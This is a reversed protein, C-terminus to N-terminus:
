LGEVGLIRNLFRSVPDFMMTLFDLPSPLPVRMDLLISMGTGILMLVSFVVAEKTRRLEKLRRLEKYSVASALAVVSVSMLM